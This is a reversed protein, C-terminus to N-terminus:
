QPAAGDLMRYILSMDVSSRITEALRSIRTDREAAISALRLPENLGCHSRAGAIFAHRFADDDFIGHLYTGFVRGDESLAGDLITESHAERVLKILPRADDLYETQGLHIEYGKVTTGISMRSLLPAILSGAARRTIKDSRLSTRIPLLALGNAVERDGTEVGAADEITQGLMQLGGCVGILVGNSGSLWRKIEGAFGNAFIWDLDNMTQKTGPLIVVDALELEEPRYAYGLSVSFEESLADFDTFNALHPFAIVAIRLPRDPDDDEVWSRASPRRQLEVSDEEDLGLDAIYPLVGVCPIGIKEEIMRIGPELLSVDGRFKNILFGRIHSREQEGLLALTGYLSAFVGGRDIDGVLLCVAEAAIAMRMNVIDRTKLNIEAPSGAGEMVVVDYEGALKRFSEVVIPFLQEVRTRYYDSADVQGWVRGLVVVQSSTHTSPKILVPNMEACAVARCAEAQLAQARGIERGDPTAASNLSMNQAKFPAVRFGDDSFIRGFAATIISKGVHSGTGLMMLPRLRKRSAQTSM